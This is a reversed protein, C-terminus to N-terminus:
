SPVKKLGYKRAIEIAKPDLSGWELKNIEKQAAVVRSVDLMIPECLKRVSQSDLKSKDSNKEEKM